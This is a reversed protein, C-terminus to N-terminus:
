AVNTGSRIKDELVTIALLRNSTSSIMLAPILERLPYDLKVFKTSATHKHYTTM